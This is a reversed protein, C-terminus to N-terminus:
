AAMVAVVCAGAGSTWGRPRAGIGSRVSRVSRQHASGVIVPATSMLKMM